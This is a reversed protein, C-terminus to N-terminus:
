MKRCYYDITEIICKKTIPKTLYGDCGSQYSKQKDKNLAHATLAVIPTRKKNHKAEWERMLRTAEYGDMVPMQIDMFVFDYSTRKFLRVAELGNEAVDITIREQKLFAKMLVQNDYSDEVLLIRRGAISIDKDEDRERFQKEKDLKESHGRKLQLTFTFTSGKGLESKVQITGGMREIFSRVITLGLGTGGFRRTTSIDVQTFQDFITSLKDKPIGIGTDIVQCELIFTNKEILDKPKLKICVQGHETFKIANGILNTFIQRLRAQDTVVVAPLSHDYNYSLQIGKKNAEFSFVQIVEDVLNKLDFEEEVISVHGAEVKSLDLVDNIIRLLNAASNKTITVYQHQEMNLETELLLDSMGIIANMPTRIEHSVMALFDSKAQSAVLAQDRLGKLEEEFWKRETIDMAIGLIRQGDSTQLPLKVQYYWRLEGTVPHRIPQEQVYVAKGSELVETEIIRVDEAKESISFDSYTKGIIEEAATNFLESTARNVLLYKGASDKVFIPHPITDIINSLLQDKEKVKQQAKKVESIDQGIGLLGITHGNYDILRTIHIEVPFTSGNKRYYIVERIYEEECGLLDNIFYQVAGEININHITIYPELDKKDHFLFPTEKGIVEQAKYGLQHEAAKNFTQIIGEENTTIILNNTSDLIAQRVHNVKSLEKTIDNALMEAHQRMHALSRLVFFVLLTIILGTILIINPIEQQLGAFFYPSSEFYIKWEQDVFPFSVSQVFDYNSTFLRDQPASVWEYILQQPKLENISSVNSQEYIRFNLDSNIYSSLTAEVVEQLYLAILVHGYWNSEHEGNLSGVTEDWYSYVPAYLIYGPGSDGKDTILTIKSTATYEGTERAKQMALRRNEETFHNFGVGIEIHTSPSVFQNILYEDENSEPWVEYKGEYPLQLEEKFELLAQQGHVYKAFSIVHIGPYNQFPQFQEEYKKWKIYDITVPDSATFFSQYANLVEVYTKVSKHLEDIIQETDHSFKEEAREYLINNAMRSFLITVVILSVIIILITFRHSLLEKIKTIKM